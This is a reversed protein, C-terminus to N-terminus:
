YAVQVEEDKIVKADVNFAFDIFNKKSKKDNFIDLEAIAGASETGVQLNEKRTLLARHPLFYKTGNDYSTKIIRDWLSFIILEIGDSRLVEIGNEYKETTFAQNAKKLERRYQDGVSKTVIYLLDGQMSLREDADIYLNELASTVVFNTTDTATFKQLAYSAQGNRSALDTTKRSADAGVIAFIQKWLGNIKNFYALNSGAKLTGGDAILGASTDGFWAVRLVAEKIAETVRMEVFNFFDTGTLDTKAVGIKTGYYWFSNQIDTFCAEFRDGVIAPTWFKESMEITNTASTPDCGGSSAGVYGSLRGLIAIQKNAVIGDVLTHFRDLEPNAFASEFVAESVAKIEEGNFTLDAVTILPM